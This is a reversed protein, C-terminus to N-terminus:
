RPPLTSEITRGLELVALAYYSSWNYRTVVYFNDTGALYSPPQSGNELEILALKGPHQLADADLVAGMATFSAVDFSPLIDPALLAELDLRQEDFRVPYHTPLGSQWGYTKFYHAVSGIVDAVSNILDIRGDGDFDVALRLWSGPMFQPWGMACAYSGRLGQPDLGQQRTLRLFHGLEERFFQQRAAARPHEPPFDLALTSLADIVRFNGTHRGYLTEVGIVGVILSAPVGYRHEARELTERHALWFRRGAQLRVPEIFRARYAEWNKPTGAPPPRMLRIVGAQRQAAGIQRRVWSADLGQAQALEDALAMASPSTAYTNNPATRALTRAGACTCALALAALVLTRRARRTSFPFATNM